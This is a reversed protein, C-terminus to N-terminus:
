IKSGSRRPGVHKGSAKTMQLSALAAALHEESNCAANVLDSLNALQDIRIVLSSCLFFNYQCQPSSDALLYFCHQHDSLMRQHRLMLAVDVTCQSRSLTSSGPLYKINDRLSSALGPALADIGLRITEPLVSRNRIHMMMRVCAFLKATEVQVGQRCQCQM